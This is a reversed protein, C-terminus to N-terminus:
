CYMARSSGLLLSAALLFHSHVVSALPIGLAFHGLIIFSQQVLRSLWEVLSEHPVPVWDRWQNLVVCDFKAKRDSASQLRLDLTM